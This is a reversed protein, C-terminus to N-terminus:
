CLRYGDGASMQAAVPWAPPQDDLRRVRMTLEQVWGSWEPDESDKGFLETLGFTLYLWTQGVPYASVGWIGDQGPIATGTGVHCAETQVGLTERVHRELADWGAAEDVAVARSACGLDSAPLLASLLAYSPLLRPRGCMPVRRRPSSEGAWAPM